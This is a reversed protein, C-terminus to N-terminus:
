LDLEPKIFSSRVLRPPPLFVVEPHHFRHPAHQFGQTRSISCPVWYFTSLELPCRFFLLIKIMIRRLLQPPLSFSSQTKPPSITPRM